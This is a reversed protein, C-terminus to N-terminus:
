TRSANALTALQALQNLSNQQSQLGALTVELTFFENQLRTRRTDLRDNLRELSASQRELTSTLTQSRDSLLGDFSTLSDNLAGFRDSFGNDEVIFFSEVDSPTARFADLFASEDFELQGAGDFGIGVGGLTTISSGTDTFRSNVFNNLLSEVSRVSQETFLLGRQETEPDFGATDAIFSKVSNFADIFSRVRDVIGAEDQTVTITVPETAVRNLDVDVGPVVNSFSNSDSALQVPVAGGGGGFILVADKPRSVDSFRLSTAGADILLEGATGATTSTVSLRFPNQGSGDDLISVQIPAGSALLKDVVDELTDTATVDVEFKFSGDIQGGQAVGAINLGEATKANGDNEVQLTASGGNQEIVIGDGADNIRATISLGVANIENLM